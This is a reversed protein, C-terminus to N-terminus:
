TGHADDVYLSFELRRSLALVEDIPCVGGMSYVGDAVYIVADGREHAAKTAKELADLDNHPVIEVRHEAGLVPRLFQKSDLAVRRGDRGRLTVQMLGRSLAETYNDQALLQMASTNRLKNSSPDSM